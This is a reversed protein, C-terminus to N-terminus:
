VLSPHFSAHISPPTFPHIVFSPHFASHSSPPIVPSSTPIFSHISPPFLPHFPLHSASPQVLIHIARPHILLLISSQTDGHVNPYIFSLTPPQVFHQLSPPIPFFLPLNELLFKEQLGEVRWAGAFCNIVLADLHRHCSPDGRLPWGVGRTHAPPRRWGCGWCSTPSLPQFSLLTSPLINVNDPRVASNGSASRSRPSIEGSAATPACM